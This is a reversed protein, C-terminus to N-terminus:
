GNTAESIDEFFIPMVKNFEKLIKGFILATEPQVHPNLVREKFIHRWERLNCSMILETKVCNPLHYRAAEPPQKHKKIKNEYRQFDILCGNLSDLAVEDLNAIERKSNVWYSIPKDVVFIYTDPPVNDEPPLVITYSHKSAYNNYRQSEQSFACLRHRVIQHSTVRSCVVRVTESHHELVSEHGRKILSRIFSKYSDKTTRRQSQYCVRGIAEIKREVEGAVNYPIYDAWDFGMFDTPEFSDSTYLFKQDYCGFQVSPEVVKIM